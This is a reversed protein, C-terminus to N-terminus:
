IILIPTVNVITVDKGTLIITESIVLVHDFCTSSWVNLQTSDWETILGGSAGVYPKYSYGCQADGWFSKVCYDDVSILKTEQVCLVLPNKKRFWVGLRWGRRVVVM